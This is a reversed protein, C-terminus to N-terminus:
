LQLKSIKEKYPTLQTLNKLKEFDELFMFGDPRVTWKRGKQLALIFLEKEQIFETYYRIFEKKASEKNDDSEGAIELKLWALFKAFLVNDCEKTVWQKVPVSKLKPFCMRLNASLSPEISVNFLSDKLSEVTKRRDRLISDILPGKLSLPQTENPDSLVNFLYEESHSKFYLNNNNRIAIQVPLKTRWFDFLNEILIPKETHNSEPNLWIDTLSRKQFAFDDRTGIIGSLNEILTQGLDVLSVLQDVQQNKQLYAAPKIFLAVHTRDSFPPEIASMFTRQVDTNANLGVLIITTQDWFSKKKLWDFFHYLTESLEDVQSDFTSNRIEGLDNTTV